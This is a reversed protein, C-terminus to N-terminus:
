NNDSNRLRLLGELMEREDVLLSYLTEELNDLNESELLRYRNMQGLPALDSLQYLTLAALEHSNPRPLNMDRLDSIFSYCKGIEDVIKDIRECDRKKSSDIASSRIVAKPYYKEPLWEQVTIKEIGICTVFLNDKSLEIVEKVECLTGISFRSDKGGVESGKEILCTGFCNDSAMGDGVLKLYRPEFIRLDFSQTPFIVTGLPFM